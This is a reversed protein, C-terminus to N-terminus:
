ELVSACTPAVVAYGRNGRLARCALELRRNANAVSVRVQGDASASYIQTGDQSFAVTLLKTDHTAFNAVHLGSSLDWLRVWADGGTILRLGDPAFAVGDIMPDEGVLVSVPKESAIDWIEIQTRAGAVALQRGDPSYALAFLLGEAGLLHQRAGTEVSWISVLGILGATAISAGDPAFALATVGHEAAMWERVLAGSAVDWLRLQGIMDASALLRGDPSFGLAKVDDAHPGLLHQLAGSTADWIRALGATDGTALRAGDPAFAVSYITEGAHDLDLLLRGPADGESAASTTWVSAHGGREGALVRTRDRSFAVAGLERERGRVLLDENTRAVSWVRVVRDSGLSVLRAGDPSFVVRDLKGLQGELLEFVHGTTSDGLRVRADYSVTAFTRGDPAFAIDTAAERHGDVTAVLEGTDTRWLKPSGENGSSLLRPPGLPAFALAQVEGHRADLTAIADGSQGDRLVISGDVGAAALRTSDPSFKLTRADIGAVEIRALETQSASGPAWLHLLGDHTATALRAGDPSFALADVRATGALVRQEVIEEDAAVNWLSLSGDAAGIALSRGDPSFRAVSVDYDDITELQKGTETMWITVSSDASTTLVRAGDPSFEVSHVDDVHGSLTRLLEGTVPDWLKVTDDRSATALRTGDPSFEITVVKDTHGLLERADHIGRTAAFLGAEIPLPPVEGHLLYRGYVDIALALAEVSRGPSDALLTATLGAQIDFQRQLDLNRQELDAAAQELLVARAELDQAQEAIRQDRELLADRVLPTAIVVLTVLTALAGVVAWIWRRKRRELNAELEALLSPMNPWRESPKAALGRVIADCVRRPVKSQTPRPRVENAYMRAAVAAGTDGEFPREGHLAEFVVMCFSFQDTSADARKGELQELAMYAPTGMIAGTQTLQRDAPSRLAGVDNPKSPEDDDRESELGRVLGFDLVRVRGDTAVMVNDPKFDRHVLQKDHAAALGKGAQVLVALKHQWSRDPTSAFYDRLTQGDVYEMAIFVAGQHQGVEYVAVVNPHSLRALGQAERTLRAIATHSQYNSSLLKIAVKRDLDTDYAAYVQGMGGEGLKRLVMFRGILSGRLDGTLTASPTRVGSDRVASASLSSQSAVTAAVASGDDLPVAGLRSDDEGDITRDVPQTAVTRMPLSEPRESMGPAYSQPGPSDIM